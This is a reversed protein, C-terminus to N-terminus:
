EHDQVPLTFSFAAGGGDLNVATLEGGHARIIRRSISLGIGMGGAKTTTFPQFLRSLVEDSIGAGTDRVTVEVMNGARLTEIRFPKALIPRDRWEPAPGQSGYGTSFIFRRGQDHLRKAVPDIREGAVNVDLMVLDFETQDILDMAAAVRAALGVVQCGLTELMDELLMAVFTEDEVILVRLGM